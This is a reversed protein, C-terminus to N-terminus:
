QPTQSRHGIFISQVVRAQSEGRPNGASDISEPRQPNRTARRIWNQRLLVVEAEPKGVVKGYSPLKDCGGHGCKKKLVDVMEDEAHEACVEAKGGARGYSPQKTCWM